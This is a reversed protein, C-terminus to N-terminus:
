AAGTHKQAGRFDLPAVAFAQYCRQRLALRDFAVEQEMVPTELGQLYAYEWHDCENSDSFLYYATDSGGTSTAGLEAELVPELGNQWINNVGSSGAASGGAAPNATSSLLELITGRLAPPGVLWRPMINLAASDTDLGGQEQMQQTLTNLTAVSPPSSAGTTLTNPGSRSTAFVATSDQALTPNDKVSQYALKNQKRRMANGLKRPIETFSSLRDNVVTQWSISFVQGWVVLKYTEKSDSLTAEEFEGDEPIARPDNLEGGLVKNVTKFDPISEAQRMWIQFTTRSDDYSMRLQVNQADLLINSFMGTTNYAPGDAAARLGLDRPNKLGMALKAINMPALSDIDSRSFGEAVLCERALGMPSQLAYSTVPTAKYPEYVKARWNWVQEPANNTFMHSFVASRATEEFKDRASETASITTAGITQQSAAVEDGIRKMAQEPTVKGVLEGLLEMKKEVSLGAAIKLGAQVDDMTAFTSCKLALQTSVDLALDEKTTTVGAELRKLIAEDSAPREESVAAFFRDLAREAEEESASIDVMKLRHLAGFVKPDMSKFEEFSIVSSGGARANMGGSASAGFESLVEDLTAIRDVLGAALSDEAGVVRGNGFGNMVADLSVGRGRAVAEAFRTYAQNVLRQQAQLAAESLPEGAVGEAKTDPNRIVITKVGEKAAAESEDTHLSYVGISGSMGGPTIVIEDAQSAIWYAGSAAMSNVVATVPTGMQDIQNAVEAIGFTSGGPSDINLVVRTINPDAEAQTLASSLAETSTGGSMESMANMRQGLVGFVNLLAIRETPYGSSYPGRAQQTGISAEIVDRDIKEGNVRTNIVGAIDRLASPLMAWPTELAARLINSYRAERQLVKTTKSTAM